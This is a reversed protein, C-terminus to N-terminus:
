YLTMALVFSVLVFDLIYWARILYCGALISNCSIKRYEVTWEHYLWVSYWGYCYLTDKCPGNLLYTVESHLPLLCHFCCFTVYFPPSTRLWFLTTGWKFEEIYKETVWDKNKRPKGHLGSLIVAFLLFACGRFLRGTYRFCSYSYLIQVFNYYNWLKKLTPQKYLM